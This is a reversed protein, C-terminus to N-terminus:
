PIMAGSMSWFHEGDHGAHLMCRGEDPEIDDCQIPNAAVDMGRTSEARAEHWACGPSSEAVFKGCRCRDSPGFTNLIDVLMMCGNAVDASFERIAPEDQMKIAVALKASHWGIEQWAERLSMSRWGVQNGKHRNAVLEHYMSTVFPAVEPYMSALDSGDTLIEDM